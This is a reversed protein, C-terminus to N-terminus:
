TMLDLTINSPQHQETKVPQELSYKDSKLEPFIVKINDCINLFWSNQSFFYMKIKFQDNRCSVSNGRLFTLEPQSM